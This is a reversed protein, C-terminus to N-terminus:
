YDRLMYEVLTTVNELHIQLYKNNKEEVEIQDDEVEGKEIDEDKSEEEYVQEV